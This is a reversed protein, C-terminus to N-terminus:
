NEGVHERRLAKRYLARRLVSAVRGVECQVEHEPPIMGWSGRQWSTMCEPCQYVNPQDTAEWEMSHYDAAAVHLAEELSRRYAREKRLLDRLRRTENAAKRARFRAWLVLSSRLVRALRGGGDHIIASRLAEVERGARALMEEAERSWALVNEYSRALHDVQHVQGGSIAVLHRTLDVLHPVARKRPSREALDTLDTKQLTLGEPQM